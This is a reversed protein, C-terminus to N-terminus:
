INMIGVIVDEFYLVIDFLLFLFIGFVYGLGLLLKVYRFLDIIINLFFDEVIRSAM